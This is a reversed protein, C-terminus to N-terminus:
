KINNITKYAEYIKLYNNKAENYSDDEQIYSAEILGLFIQIVENILNEYKTIEVIYYVLYNKMMNNVEEIMKKIYDYFKEERQGFPIGSKLFSFPLKWIIDYAPSFPFTILTSPISIVLGLKKMELSLELSLNIQKEPIWIKELEMLIQKRINKLNKELINNLAGIINNIQASIDKINKELSITGVSNVSKEFIAKQFNLVGLIFM